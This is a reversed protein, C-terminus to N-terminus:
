RQGGFFYMDMGTWACSMADVAHARPDPYPSVYVPLRTTVETAMMDVMPRGWVMWLPTAVQPHLTSETNVIQHSRPLLDAMRNLRGSIHCARLTLELSLVVDLLDFTLDM